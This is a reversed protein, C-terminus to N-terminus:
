LYKIIEKQWNLGTSESSISKKERDFQNFICNASRDFRTKM